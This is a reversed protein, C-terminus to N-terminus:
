PCQPLINDKCKQWALLVKLAQLNAASATSGSDTQATVASPPTTDRTQGREMEAAMSAGSISAVFVAAFLTGTIATKRTATM